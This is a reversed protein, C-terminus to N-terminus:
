CRAFHSALYRETILEDPYRQPVPEEDFLEWFGKPYVLNFRISPYVGLVGSVMWPTYDDIHRM